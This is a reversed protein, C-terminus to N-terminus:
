YKLICWLARLGDRFGIKKGEEYTRSQYHIPVELFRVARKALKCTLEIEIGFGDEETLPIVEHALKEPLAKYCTEVDTLHLGTTWNSFLTIMRNGWRHWRRDPRVGLRSYRSGYVVDATGALIPHILDTLDQPDYELDADQVVVVNGVAMSIGTRVAAGKGVNAGHTALQIERTIALDTLIQNTGDTSGDDVLILETPIDISKVRRVVEAVTAEENFVPIVVSLLFDSSFVIWRTKSGITDTVVRTADDVRLRNDVM